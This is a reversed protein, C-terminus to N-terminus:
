LLTATEVVGCQNRTKTGTCWCGELVAGGPGWGGGQVGAELGGVWGWPLGVNEKWLGEIAGWELCTVFVWM